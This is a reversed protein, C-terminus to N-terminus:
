QLYKKTLRPKTRKLMKTVGKMKQSSDKDFYTGFM